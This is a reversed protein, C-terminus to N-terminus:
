KEALGIKNEIRLFRKHVEDTKARNSALDDFRNGLGIIKQNIGIMKTNIEALSNQVNAVAMATVEVQESVDRIRGSLDTSISEVHENNFKIQKSLTKNVAEIQKSLENNSVEKKVKKKITTKKKTM